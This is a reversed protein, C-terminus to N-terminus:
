QYKQNNGTPTHTHSHSTELPLPRPQQQGAPLACSLGLFSGLFGAGEATSPTVEPSPLPLSDERSGLMLELASERGGGGTGRQTAVVAVKRKEFKQQQQETVWDHGVRQSGM